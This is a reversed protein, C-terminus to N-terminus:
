SLRVKPDLRAYSIDIATNILVIILGIVIVSGQVVPIDRNLVSRVLLQGLGPLSFVQEVVFAVGFMVTYRMGIVTIVPIMANHLAHRWIISRKPLGAARAAQIYNSQLVILMASRTQRAIPAVSAIGLALAPLTISHLWGVPDRGFPIYGLAPFWDIYIAFAIILLFAIFYAPMASGLSTLITVARDVPSGPSLAALIGSSVGVVVAILIGGTTISVTVPLRQMIAERVTFNGTLSEGLDGRVADGLWRAYQVPLADDLGLQEELVRVNDPTARDGLLVVAINGHVLHLLLFALLSIFVLLPMVMLLRWVVYRLM